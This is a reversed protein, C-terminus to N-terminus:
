FKEIAWRWKQFWNLDETKLCLIRRAPCVWRNISSESMVRHVEWGLWSTEEFGRLDGLVWIGMITIRRMITLLETWYFWGILHPARFVVSCTKNEETNVPYPHKVCCIVISTDASHSVFKVTFRKWALIFVFASDVEHIKIYYCSKTVFLFVETIFLEMELNPLLKNCVVSFSRHKMQREKLFLLICIWTFWTLIHKSPSVSCLLFYVQFVYLTVSFDINSFHIALVLYYEM